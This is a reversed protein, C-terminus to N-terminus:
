KSRMVLILGVGIVIFYGIFSYLDPIEGLFIFGLVGAFIVQAYDFAAINKAAAYRYAFTVGYQGVAASFGALVLMTLQYMSMPEYDFLLSPLLIVTSTISFFFIIFEGSIDHKGLYRVCTYAIGAGVAGILAALAGTSILGDPSPKIIFMVGIFAVVLALVQSTTMREKFFFYCLILIVFPSIKQIASADALNIHGIAYFNMVLGVTGFLARAILVWWEKSNKPLKIKARHQILPVAAIIAAISNRFIGKQMAPLNGSLKVFLAMVAFGLGSMVICFIGMLVNNKRM